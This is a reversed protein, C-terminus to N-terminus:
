RWGEGSSAGTRSRAQRSHSSSGTTRVRPRDGSWSSATASRSPLIRSDGGAVRGRHGVSGGGFAGLVEEVAGADLSLVSGPDREGQGHSQTAVVGFPRLLDGVGIGVCHDERVVADQAATPDQLRCGGACAM